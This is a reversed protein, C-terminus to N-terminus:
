SLNAKPQKQYISNGRYAFLTRERVIEAHGLVLYCSPALHDYLMGIVRDRVKDKFYIIVNRCLVLDYTRRLAHPDALNGQVFSVRSRVHDAVAFSGDRESFYSRLWRAPVKDVRAAPYVAARAEEISPKSVDLGTIRVPPLSRTRAFDEVLMSLGYCEEGTSCGACLVNWPRDPRKALLEPFATKAIFDFQGSERLFYTYHTTVLNVFRECAQPDRGSEVVDLYAAFSPLGLRDRERSLRCELLVRKSEMNLGYTRALYSCTREFESDTLHEVRATEVPPNDYQSLM